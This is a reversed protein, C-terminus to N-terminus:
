RLLRDPSLRCDIYNTPDLVHDLESDFMRFIGKM